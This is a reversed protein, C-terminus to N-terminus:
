SKEDLFSNESINIQAFFPASFERKSTAPAFANECFILDMTCIFAWLVVHPLGKVGARLLWWAFDSNPCFFPSYKKQAPL